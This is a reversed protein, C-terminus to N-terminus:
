RVIVRSASTITTTSQFKERPRSRKIEIEVAFAMVVIERMWVIANLNKCFFKAKQRSFQIELVRLCKM